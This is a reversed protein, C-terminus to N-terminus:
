DPKFANEYNNIYTLFDQSLEGLKLLVLEKNKNNVVKYLEEDEIAYYMFGSVYESPIKLQNVCYEENAYLSLRTRLMDAKELEVDRKLNKLRGTIWNVVLDVSLLGGGSSGAHLRREAVTMKLPTYNIIGLSQATFPAEDLIVVEDLETVKSTMKVIMQQSDINDQTVSQRWYDLHIASFIILDGESAEIEFQGLHDSVTTTENSINLVHVNEVSAEECQISVKVIATQAYTFLCWFLFLLLRM